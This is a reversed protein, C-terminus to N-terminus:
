LIKRLVLYHTKNRKQEQKKKDGVEKDKVADWLLTFQMADMKTVTTAHKTVFKHINTQKNTKEIPLCIM